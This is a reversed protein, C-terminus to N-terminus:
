VATLRKTVQLLFADAKFCFCLRTLTLMQAFVGSSSVSQVNAKPFLFFLVSLKSFYGFSQCVLIQHNYMKQKNEKKKFYISFTICVFCVSNEFFIILAFYLLPFLCVFVLCFCSGLNKGRMIKKKLLLSDVMISAEHLFQM